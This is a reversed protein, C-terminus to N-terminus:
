LWAPVGPLADHPEVVLGDGDSRGILWALLAPEPGRVLLWEKDTADCGVGVAHATEEAYLRFPTAATAPYSGDGFRAAAMELAPGTFEAPWHAPSFGTDLDVHHILVEELRWWPIRVAPQTGGFRREVQAAWQQPTLRAADEAFRQSSERLDAALQAATRTAGAEIDADKKARDPYMDHRDGTAAWALLNRLGDANRALHTLLHGRTWGPLACPERVAEDDLREASGILQATADTVEALLATPDYEPSRPDITM